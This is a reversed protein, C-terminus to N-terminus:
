SMRGSIQSFNAHRVQRVETQRRGSCLLGVSDKCINQKITIMIVIVIVTITITIIIIIVIIIITIIILIIMIVIMKTTPKLKTSPKLRNGFDM